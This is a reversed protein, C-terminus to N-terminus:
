FDGLDPYGLSGGFPIGILDVSVGAALIYRLVDGLVGDAENGRLYIPYPGNNQDGYDLTNPDLDLLNLLHGGLPQGAPRAGATPQVFTTPVSLLDLDLYIRVKGRSEVFYFPLFAVKAGPQATTWADWYACNVVSLQATTTAVDVSDVWRFGSNVSVWRHAYAASTLSAHTFQGSANITTTIETTASWPSFLADLARFLSPITGRPQYVLVKLLNRWAQAPYASPRHLNFLSASLFDLEDDACRTFVTARRAADCQSLTQIM